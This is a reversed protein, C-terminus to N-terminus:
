EQDKVSTKFGRIAEGISSGLAPLKKPGVFLLAIGAIMCLETMGLGFM